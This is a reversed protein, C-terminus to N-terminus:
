FLENKFAKVNKVKSGRQSVLYDCELLVFRKDDHYGDKLYNSVTNRHVGMVEAILTKDKSVYGMKSNKDILVIMTNKSGFCLSTDISLGNPINGLM